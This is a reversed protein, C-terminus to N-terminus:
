NSEHLKAVSGGGRKGKKKKKDIKKVSMKDDAIKAHDNHCCTM